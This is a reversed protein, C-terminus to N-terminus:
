KSINEKKKVKLNDRCQKYAFRLNNHKKIDRCFCQGSEHFLRSRKDVSSNQLWVILAHCGDLNM